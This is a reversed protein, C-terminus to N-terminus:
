FTVLNNGLSSVVVVVVFFMCFCQSHQLMKIENLNFYLPTTFEVPLINLYPSWKAALKEDKPSTKLYLVLMALAVNAMSSLLRDEKFLKEINTGKVENLTLIIENPVKFL